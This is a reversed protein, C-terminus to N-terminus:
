SVKKTQVICPNVSWKVETNHVKAILHGRKTYAKKEVIHVQCVVNFYIRLQTFKIKNQKIQHLHCFACLIPYSFLKEMKQKNQNIVSQHQM